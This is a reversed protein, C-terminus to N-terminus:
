RCQDDARSTDVETLIGAHVNGVNEIVEIIGLTVGYAGGGAVQQYQRPCTATFCPYQNM